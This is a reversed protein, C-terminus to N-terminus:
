FAVRLGAGVSRPFRPGYVYSADRLPGRDLDRQYANTLNRGHVLLTVTRGELTGLARSFAADLTLFPPSIELRDSAVFGAYHPVRMPGTYRAGVFFEGVAHPAWTVMATAHRAPTRMFDRAGFDPDPQDLRSRQFVVGAQVIFDDGIGWGLNVEAGSVRAGGLNTKEFEIAATEPRDAWRTFFLDSLRTSFVNLEILAQGAGVVPKWEAGAMLSASREERLDQGQVVLRSAGGVSSLHLDEDFVQPARFGTSMSARVDLAAVPSWHAAARPSVVARELASHTDVRAGYVISWGRGPSWDDQVVLGATVSRQDTFRAYAPQRDVLTERGAQLGATWVHHGAYRNVQVDVLLLGSSTDGYANPDRGTGYYSDRGTGSWAGTVRYDLRRGVGHVWSVSATARRSDISEAIDAEHPPRDLANGGRRQEDVLGADVTLKAAQGLVYRAVRIGGARLRRRSVETFGDGDLDVAAVGDGQGYGTVLTRRDASVWDGSGSITRNAGGGGDEWRGEVLGGTRSPERPIVNVVGGVAGPGYLPSGGGKVVEIREIMRAPIQEIGYVQALSSIVPQSDILIQTYPGELGLLRIQSFNCNQCNSEVRVGTTYEVAEALTRAGVRDVDQRGIVETRIPGDALRPSTREATVRTEQTFAPVLVVDAVAVGARPGEVDVPVFGALEIHLTAGDPPPASLCYRGAQDTVAEVGGPEVVVSVGPLPFGAADRVIGAVPCGGQVVTAWLALVAIVSM